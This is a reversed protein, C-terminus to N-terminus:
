WFFYFSQTNRRRNVANSGYSGSSGSVNVTGNTYITLDGSSTILSGTYDTLSLTGYSRNYSWGTGSADEDSLFSTGNVRIWYPEADMLSANLSEANPIENDEQTSDVGIGVAPTYEVDEYQDGEAYAVPACFILGVVMILVLNLAAIKKGPRM